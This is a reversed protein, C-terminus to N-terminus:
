ARGIALASRLWRAPSVRAWDDILGQGPRAGWHIVRNRAKVVLDLLEAQPGAPAVGCKAALHQMLTELMMQEAARPPRATGHLELLEVAIVLYENYLSVAFPVAMLALERESAELKRVAAGVRFDFREVDELQDSSYLEGLRRQAEDPLRERLTKGALRAGVLLGLAADNAAVSLEEFDRFGRHRVLAPPRPRTM